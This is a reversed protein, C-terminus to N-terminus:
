GSRHPVGGDGVEGRRMGVVDSPASRLPFCGGYASTIRMELGPVWAILSLFFRSILRERIFPIMVMALVLVSRGGTSGARVM